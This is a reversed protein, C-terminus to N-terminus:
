AAARAMFSSEHAFNARVIAAALPPCVSNGAMRVQEHKTLRRGDEGRDIIYTDPFGQARFLERPQLMRMGIDTLVFTHGDIRVTVLKLRDKTTVTPSPEDLDRGTLGSGDGYYPALFSAILSSHNGGPAYLQMPATVTGNRRDEGHHNLLNVAVLAQTSGKQVITSVPEEMSHGVMGTNHQAMFAAVEFHHNASGESRAFFPIVVGMAHGAGAPRKKFSGATVTHMPEDIPQGISGSRHKIIFPKHTELVFKCVGRAIRQLTNEVLPRKAKLGFKIKIEESTDFISPCPLSWDICEAATHYPLLDGRKVAISDPDGHTPKPWVIPLGDCRAIVFLRTRITPAGYDCAKLPRYEVQYGLRQLQRVWHRFTKGKRRDCPHGNEDLPGWDQFECVNEIMIVRPRVRRAWRIVVWALGRRKNSLPKGGKAKSHHTCDPSAWLLGVPQGKTAKKPNVKFVSECYHHTLPHNAQHMAVAAPDHNVAVDVQRSLGMELGLSTGGGGAFLDVVLEHGLDLPQQNM